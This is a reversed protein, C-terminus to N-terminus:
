EIDIDVDSKDSIVTLVMCRVCFVFFLDSHLYKYLQLLTILILWEM